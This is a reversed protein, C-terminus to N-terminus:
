NCFLGDKAAAVILDASKALGFMGSDLSLHYNECLGWERDTFFRYYNRRRDDKEKMRAETSKEGVGYQELIRSCRRKTDAYVFVNLCDTRHQLIYDACRGVIVCSEREALERIVQSQAEFLKQYSSRGHLGTVSMALQYLFSNSYNANEENERVFDVSFGSKKAVETILQNDYFPVGLKQAVLKAIAHGGSGYQRSITIIRKDM